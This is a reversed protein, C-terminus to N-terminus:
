WAAYRVTQPTQSLNRDTRTGWALAPMSDRRGPDIEACCCCIVLSRGCITRGNSRASWQRVSWVFGHRASGSPLWVVIRASLQQEIHFRARLVRPTLKDDM